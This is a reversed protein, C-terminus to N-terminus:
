GVRSPVKSFLQVANRTIGLVNKGGSLKLAAAIYDFFEQGEDDGVLRRGRLVIAMEDPTINM